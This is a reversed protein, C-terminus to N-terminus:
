RRRECGGPSAAWCVGANLLRWVVGGLRVPLYHFPVLFAAVLPSYRFQDQDPSWDQRYLERGAEWDSGAQAWTTYLTRKNPQVAARVCIAGLVIVWILVATRVWPDWARPQPAELPM